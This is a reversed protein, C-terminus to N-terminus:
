EKVFKVCKSKTGNTIHLIYIGAKFNALDILKYGTNLIREKHMTTGLINFIEIKAEQIEMGFNLRLYDGAPIPYVSLNNEFFDDTVSVISGTYKVIFCDNWGASLLFISPESHFSAAGNFFGCGYINGVLDVAISRGYDSGTGGMREAWVFNGDIDLVSIFVDTDYTSSTSLIFTGSGPDFDISSRFYGISYVNGNADVDIDHGFEVQTSGFQKVWILNGSTDLRSVFVDSYGTSTLMQIGPGPDLDASDLFAGLLFLNGSKDAKMSMGYDTHGGGIHKSWIYEGTPELKLIFIDSGGLATSSDTAPGTNLDVTSQYEGLVYVNSEKDITISNGKDEEIGGMSLAWMFNGSSSLKCVFADENGSSTLIHSGPGPDFDVSVAFDGTLYINGQSDTCISNINEDLAAGFRRAWVFTGTSDLKLIFADFFGESAARLNYTGPGPDFDQTSLFEGAVFVNMLSDLAISFGLTGQVQGLQKAWILNGQPDLKSIYTNQEGETGLWYFGAGPDFDVTDSFLGVTYVNGQADVAISYSGDHQLGGIRKAWQLTQATLLSDFQGILLVM